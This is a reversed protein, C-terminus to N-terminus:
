SIATSTESMVQTYLRKGGIEVPDEWSKIKEKRQTYIHSSLLFSELEVVFILLDLNVYKQLSFNDRARHNTKSKFISLFSPSHTSSLLNPPLPPQSPLCLRHLGLVLNSGRRQEERRGEGSSNPPFSLGYRIGISWVM